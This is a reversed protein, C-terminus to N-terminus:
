RRPGTRNPSAAKRDRKWQALEIRYLRDDQKEQARRRACSTCLPVRPTASDHWQARDCELCDGGFYRRRGPGPLLGLRADLDASTETHEPQTEIRAREKQRHRKRRQKLTNENAM